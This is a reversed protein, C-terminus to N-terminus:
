SKREKIKEKNFKIAEIPCSWVCKSCNTCREEIIKIEAEKLEFADEPCVGVCCGCFDCKDPIIEILLLIKVKRFM